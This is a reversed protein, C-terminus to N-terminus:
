EEEFEGEIVVADDVNLLKAIRSAVDEATKFEHIETSQGQAVRMINFQEVAIRSADRATAEGVTEQVRAQAQVLNSAADRIVQEVFEPGLTTVAHKQLELDAVNLLGKAQWKRATTESIGTERCAAALNGSLRYSERLQVLEQKNRVKDFAEKSQAGM